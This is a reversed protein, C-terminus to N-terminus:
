GHGIDLRTLYHVVMLILFICAIAFFGILAFYESYFLYKGRFFPVFEFSDGM